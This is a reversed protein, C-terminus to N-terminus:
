TWATLRSNRLRETREAGMQMQRIREPSVGWDEAIARLTLGQRRLELVRAERLIRHAKMAAVPTSIPDLPKM